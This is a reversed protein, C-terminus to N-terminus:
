GAQASPTAPAALPPLARLATILRAVGAPPLSEIRYLSPKGPLTAAAHVSGDIGAAALATALEQVRLTEEPSVFRGRRGRPPNPLPVQVAAASHTAHARAQKAAARLERVTAAAVDLTPGEPWLTIKEGALIAPKAEGPTADALEILADAREVGLKACLEPPLKTAVRMFKAATTPALGFERRCLAPFSEYGQAQAYGPKALEVLCLGAEHFNSAGASLASKITAVLRSTEEALKTRAANALASISSASKPDSDAPVGRPTGTAVTEPVSQM